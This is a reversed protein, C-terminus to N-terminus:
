RVLALSLPVAVGGALLGIAVLAAGALAPLPPNARGRISEWERVSPWSALVLMLGPAAICSGFALGSLFLVLVPPEHPTEASIAGILMLSLGIVVVVGSGLYSPANWRPRSPSGARRPQVFRWVVGAWGVLTFWSGLVLTGVAFSM